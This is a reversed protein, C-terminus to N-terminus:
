MRMPPRPSKAVETLHRLIFAEIDVHTGFLAYWLLFLEGKRCVNQSDSRGFIINAMLRQLYRITLNCIDTAKAQRPDYM